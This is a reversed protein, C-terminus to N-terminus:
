RSWELSVGQAAIRIFGNFREVYVWCLFCNEGLKPLEIPSTEPEGSGIDILPLGPYAAGGVGPPDVVVFQVGVFRLEVPRYMPEDEAVGSVDINVMLIATREAYDLQMARLEADHLGNPLSAALDAITV